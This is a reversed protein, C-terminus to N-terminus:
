MSSASRRSSPFDSRQTIGSAADFSANWAAFTAGRDFAARLDDPAHDWDLIAGDAHWSLEPGDGIAYALIIARTSVDTAYRLTGVAKLDVGAPWKSISGFLDPDFM